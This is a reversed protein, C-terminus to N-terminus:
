HSGTKLNLKASSDSSFNLPLLCFLDSPTLYIFMNDARLRWYVKERNEGGDQRTPLSSNTHFNPM